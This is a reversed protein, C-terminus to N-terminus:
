LSSEGKYASIDIVTKGKVNICDYDTFCEQLNLVREYSDFFLTLGPGDLAISRSEDWKLCWGAFEVDKLSNILHFEKGSLRDLL